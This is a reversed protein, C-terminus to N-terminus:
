ETIKLIQEEWAVKQDYGKHAVKPSLEVTGPQDSDSAQDHSNSREEHGQRMEELSRSYLCEKINDTNFTHLIHSM